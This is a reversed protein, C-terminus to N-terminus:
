SSQISESDRTKARKSRSKRKKLGAMENEPVDLAPYTTVIHQTMIAQKDSFQAYVDSKLKALDGKPIKLQTEVASISGYEQILDDIIFKAEQAHQHAFLDHNQTASQLLLRGARTVRDQASTRSERCHSANENVQFGLFVIVVVMIMFVLLFLGNM